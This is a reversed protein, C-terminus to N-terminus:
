RATWEEAAMEIVDAADDLGQRRAAEAPTQGLPNRFTPDAGFSLLLEALEVATEQNDPLCFLAPEGPRDQRNARDPEETLLTRLRDVKGAFCLGRFNRSHGALFDVMEWQEHYVAHTLPSGGYRGDFPDVEAGRAVLLRAVAVAGAHAAFHLARCNHDDAVDPSLGLDLLVEVMDTRGTDLAVKVPAIARLFEPHATALRRLTATDGTAVAAVFVEDETLDPRPAGYRVLLDVMAGHGGMVAHKMVPQRSYFNIDDARAGHELLWEARRLHNSAVANGLLYAVASRSKEGGLAQPAPGTWKATEGRKASQAWLFELWATSDERLSTNYLAQAALPDAGRDILLRAFAEAQPHPAQGGEGDGIVGVLPTFEPSDSWGADPDAGVDLLLTAMALADAEGIANGQPLRAYALHALPTWGDFDSRDHVLGPDKALFGRVADLDHAVVATHINARAIEPHRALLRAAVAGRNGGDREYDGWKRTAPDTGYRNVAKELFLHVRQEMTRTRDALEQTLAAWTPFGHERALAHQVERLKPATAHGPFVILFRAIADAEGAGMAKLWRKAERRLGDVTTRTSLTRSM